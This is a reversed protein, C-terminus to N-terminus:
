ADPGTIQAYLVHYAVRFPRPAAGVLKRMENASIPKHGRGPTGGGSKKLARLYDLVAGYTMTHRRVVGGSALSEAFDAPPFPWLGHRVGADDCLDRWAGLSGAIPVAVYLTGGPALWRRWRQLIEAPQAFWHLMMCSFILDFRQILDCEGADAQIITLRPIKRQAERLMAPAIDLGTLDAEPWRKRAQSLASGTGCGIDLISRPASACASMVLTKAVKAQIGAVADYDLAAKDFARAVLPTTM